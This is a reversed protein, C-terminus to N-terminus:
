WGMCMYVTRIKTRVKLARVKPIRVKPTRVKPHDRILHWRGTSNCWNEWVLVHENHDM